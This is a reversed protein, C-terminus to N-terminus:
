GRLVSKALRPLVGDSVFQKIIVEVRAAIDEHSEPADGLVKRARAVAAKPGEGLDRAATLLADSTQGRDKLVGLENIVWSMALFAPSDLVIPDSVEKRKPFQNFPSKLVADNIYAALAEDVPQETPRVFLGDLSAPLISLWRIRRRVEHVGAELHTFDFDGAALKNQINKACDAFYEACAKKEKRAGPWDADEIIEVLEDWGEPTEGDKPTWGAAELHREVQFCAEARRGIFYGRLESDANADGLRKVMADAFDVAGLLDEFAKFAAHLPEFEEDDIIVRHLRALCQLQFLGSRAGNRHLALGPSPQKASRQLHGYLERLRRAYAQQSRGKSREEIRTLRAELSKSAM